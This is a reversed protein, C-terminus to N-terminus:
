DIGVSDNQTVNSSVPILNMIRGKQKQTGAQLGEEIPWDTNIFRTGIGGIGVVRSSPLASTDINPSLLGVGANIILPSVLVKIIPEKQTTSLTLAAPTLTINIAFPYALGDGSNYLESVESSSLARNWFGLEDLNGAFNRNGTSESGVIWNNGTHTRTDNNTAVESGNVYLYETDTGSTDMVYVVHYWTGDTPIWGTQWESGGGSYVDFETASTPEFTFVPTNGGEGQLVRKSAGDGGSLKKIWFSISWSDSYGDTPIDLVPPSAEGGLLICKDIKGTQNVSVGASHTGDNSGVGDDVNTGSTENFNYYADIDDSLAM